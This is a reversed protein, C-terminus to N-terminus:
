VEIGQAQLATIIAQIQSKMSDVDVRMELNTRELHLRTRTSDRNDDKRDKIKGRYERKDESM